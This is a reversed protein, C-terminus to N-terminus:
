LGLRCDFQIAGPIGPRNVGAPCLKGERSMVATIFMPAHAFDETSALCVQTAELAFAKSGISSIKFRPVVVM